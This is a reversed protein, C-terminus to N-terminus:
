SRGAREDPQDLGLFGRLDAIFRERQWLHPSHDTGEYIHLRADPIRRSVYRALAVSYFHSEDGHVLLTPVSIAPLVERYDAQSLSRWIEILPQSRLRALYERVRQFGRSDRAYSERARANNGEAALRLVAEAFDQELRQIFAANRDHGFDGYVGHTWDSDTMLKPSQDILCLAALRDCGFQRIYEWITLAGM